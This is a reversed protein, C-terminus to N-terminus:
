NNKLGEKRETKLNKSSKQNIKKWIALLLVNM